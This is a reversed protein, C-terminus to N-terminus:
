LGINEYFDVWKSRSIINSTLNSVTRVKGSKTTVIFDSQIIKSDRLQNLVVVLTAKLQLYASDGFSLQSFFAQTKLRKQLKKQALTQLVFVQAWLSYKSRYTLFVEPLHFPFPYFLDILEECGVLIVHWTNKQKQLDVFPFFTVGRYHEDSFYTSFTPIKDLSIIFDKFQQLQYYNTKQYGTFELFNHLPFKYSRYTAKGYAVSSRQSELGEIFKLLQLFRYFDVTRRDQYIPQLTLYTTSLSQRSLFQSQRVSRFERKFWDLYLNDIDFIQSTEKFYTHTYSKEFEDFDQRFFSHQYAKAKKRKLELEFRVEKGNERLYTRYHKPSNKRTWVKLSQGKLQVKVKNSLLKLETEQLFNILSPDAHTIMRDYKLDLRGLSIFNMNFISPDFHQPNLSKYRDYFIAANRGSFRLITGKWYDIEGIYFDAVCYPKRLYVLKKKTKEKKDIFRTQCKFHEAFYNAIMQIKDFDETNINFAIEDIKIDFSQFNFKSEKM